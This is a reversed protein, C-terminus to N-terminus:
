IPVRQLCILKLDSRCKSLCSNLILSVAPSINSGPISFVKSEFIPIASTPQPGTDGNTENVESLLSIFWYYRGPVVFAPEKKGFM